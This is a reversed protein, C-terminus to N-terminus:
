RSLSFRLAPRSPRGVARVLRGMGSSSAYSRFLRRFRHNNTFFFFCFSLLVARSSFHFVRHLQTKLKGVPGALSSSLSFSVVPSSDLLLRDISRTMTRRARARRDNLGASPPIKLHDGRPSNPHDNVSHVASTPFVSPSISCPGTPVLKGVGHCKTVTCM